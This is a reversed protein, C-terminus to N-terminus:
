KVRPEYKETVENRQVGRGKVERVINDKKNEYVYFYAVGDQKVAEAAQHIVNLMNWEDPIVNLVNAVTVTDVGGHKNIAEQIANFRELNHEPTRNYPDFVSSDVGQEKMYNTATDYKGGGIDANVTGKKWEVHTM